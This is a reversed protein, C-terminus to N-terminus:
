IETIDAKQKRALNQHDCYAIFVVGKDRHTSLISILIEGGDSPFECSYQRNGNYLSKMFSENDGSEVIPSEKINIPTNYKKAYINKCRTYTNLLDRWKDTEGLRVMVTYVERNSDDAIVIIEAPIGTFSGNYLYINCENEKREYGKEEIKKCFSAIDGSIPIGMFDLHPKENNSVINFNIESNNETSSNNKCGSILVTFIIIILISLKM